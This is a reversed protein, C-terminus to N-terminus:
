YGSSLVESLFTLGKRMTERGCTFSLRLHNEVKFCCGPVFFVGHNELLRIALERSPISGQYRLFSVTCCEPLVVDCRPENKLWERVADQTESIVSRSRALLQDRHKMAILGLTDSLPGSSIISYDRRENIKQILEVPGKIWGLRLGALSYMKSFSSTSIGREYLDSLSPNAPDRYVEDSLIWTGKASALEIMRKLFDSSFLTGTPNNPNNLIILRVEQKMVEELDSVSPQWGRDEYLKLSTVKCGLSAPYDTFAQYGPEFTVVHDGPNLLTNLVLENGQLCGQSTTISDITGHRYLKRIEQKLRVDGTISGYDLLINQFDRDEDMALLEEIRLAPVCTDTLNFVARGEHDTMWQEVEFVPLNM